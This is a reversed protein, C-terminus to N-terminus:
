GGNKSETNESQSLRGGRMMLVEDALAHLFVKNQEVVLMSFRGRLQQLASLVQNVLIPALGQTPEDLMLVEPDLLLARAIALMQQEGGSLAGGPQDLREGLRPFLTLMEDLRTRFAESSLRGAARPLDLNERVSLRVLIQRGEPVMVLGARTRQYASRQQVSTGQLLVDGGQAPLLGAITKLLTSKGVGNPGLIGLARREPLELNLERFVTLRGYGGSLARVVLPATM